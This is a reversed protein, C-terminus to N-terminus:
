GQPDVEHHRRFAKYMFFAGLLMIMPSFVLLGFGFRVAKEESSVIGIILLILLSGIVRWVWLSFDRFIMTPFFDSEKHALTEMTELDIVHRATRSLPGLIMMGITYVIFVALSFSLVPLGALFSMPLATAALFLMRNGSHRFRSIFVLIFVSLIAFVSNFIGVHKVDHLLLLSAVPILATEWTMTLSDGFLYLQSFRNRRDTFFHKVDTKTIPKPRYDSIKRFFPLGALYTIPAIVFLLTFTQGHFLKESFYLLTTGIIPAVVGILQGGFSLMSSYFEREDNKTETLEFTHITLWYIGSGIGHALMFLMADLRSVSGYLFGFSAAMFVFSFVYGWKLNLSWKAFIAGVVCFGLMIGFFDVALAIVNVAISQFTSYVFLQVFLGTLSSVFVYIWFLYVMAKVPPRLTQFNNLMTRLM